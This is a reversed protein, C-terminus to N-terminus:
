HIEHVEILFPAAKKERKDRDRNENQQHHIHEPCVSDPEQM